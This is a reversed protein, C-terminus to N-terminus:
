ADNPEYGETQTRAYATALGGAVVSRYTTCEANIETLRVDRDDEPYSVEYILVADELEVDEGYEDIMHDLARLALDTVRARDTETIAM